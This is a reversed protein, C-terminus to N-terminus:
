TRCLIVPSLVPPPANRKEVYPRKPLLIQLQVVWYYLRLKRLIGITEHESEPREMYINKSYNTILVADVM